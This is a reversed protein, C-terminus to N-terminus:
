EGLPQVKIAENMMENFDDTTMTSLVSDIADKLETNGKRVSTGINVNEEREENTGWEYITVRIQKLLRM